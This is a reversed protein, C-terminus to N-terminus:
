SYVEGGENDDNDLNDGNSNIPVQQQEQQDGQEEQEESSQDSQSQVPASQPQQQQEDKCFKYLEQAALIVDGFTSCEDCLRVIEQEKESFKVDIFNGIKANLNIRDALTFTSIDEDVICFFDQASLEGYGAFFTKALGPYKRKMQKEIRIDEIINVYQHPLDPYTKNWDDDPTFLAHGVEHGVLMDYVTNSAREWMPLTLVRTHVNFQATECHRHEVILDETALLKALQSKIEHKVAM